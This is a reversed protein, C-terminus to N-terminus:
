EARGQLVRSGDAAQGHSRGRRDHGEKEEQGGQEGKAPEQSAGAAVLNKATKDAKEKQKQLDAELKQMLDEVPYLAQLQCEGWGRGCM